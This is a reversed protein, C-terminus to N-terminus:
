LDRGMEKKTHRTVMSHIGGRETEDSEEFSEGEDITKRNVEKSEREIDSRDMAGDRLKEFANYGDENKTQQRQKRIFSSRKKGEFMAPVSRQKSRKKTKEEADIVCQLIDRGSVCVRADLIEKAFIRDRDQGQRLLERISLNFVHSNLTENSAEKRSEDRLVIPTDHRSSIENGNITRHYMTWIVEIGEDSGAKYGIKVAFAINITLDLSQTLYQHIVDYGAHDTQSHEVELALSPYLEKNVTLGVDAFREKIKEEEDLYQISNETDVLIGLGSESALKGLSSLTKDAAKQITRRINDRTENHIFGGIAMIFWGEQYSYAIHYNNKVFEWDEKKLKQKATDIIHIIEEREISFEQAPRLYKRGDDAEDFRWYPSITTDIPFPTNYSKIGQACFTILEIVATCLESNLSSPVTGSNSKNINKRLLESDSTSSVMPSPTLLSHLSESTQPQEQASTSLDPTPILILSMDQAQPSSSSNNMKKPDDFKYIGKFQAM